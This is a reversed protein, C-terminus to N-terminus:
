DRRKRRRNKGGDGLPDDEGGLFGKMFKGIGGGGSLLGEITDALPDEGKEPIRRGKEDFRQPLDITTDSKAPSPSRASNVLTNASSNPNSSASPASEQRHHHHHRHKHPRSSSSASRNSPHSTSPNDSFSSYENNISDDRYQDRDHSGTRQRRKRIHEPSSPSSTDPTDLNFQVSKFPPQSSSRHRDGSSQPSFARPTTLGEEAARQEDVPVGTANFFSEASVNEDARRANGAPPAYPNAPPPSYTGQAGPPIYPNQQPAYGYDPHIQQSPQGPQQGYQAPDYGPSPAYGGAPPPPFQNTSPYYAEQQQPYGAAQAGSAEPSIPSYPQQQPPYQERDREDYSGPGHEAEYRRRERKEQKRQQKRKEHQSIAAAAGAAGLGAAALDRTRSRSPSDSKKRRHRRRRGGDSESSSSGGRRRERSREAGYAAGATVPVMAGERYGAQSAPRNHFDPVGGTSYVPQDGYEILGPDSANASRPGDFAVSRSRSRSMSRSKRREARAEKRSEKEKKGAQNKEYLGAIAASGLGAAAIPLGTRVRSKSRSKGRGSRSKSRAREVLGAVAAGALGAQAIKKNRHAPDRADDPPEDAAHRRTRSRSRRDDKAEKEKNNRSRAYGVAAATAAAALGLGALQRVRSKSRSRSRSKHRRRRRERDRSRSRSRSPSGRRSKSRHRSRARSIAEAGAVGLAAAGLDKGVRSKRSSKEDGEREKHHRLLEAAGFGAIAGEALHRKHHPSEDRGYSDRTEKRIYVMSDDSSYDRDRRRGLGIQSVSDGPSVERRRYRQEEYFDDDGGRRSRDDRSVERVRREYYYDEERDERREPERRAIQRDENVESRQILQFESEEKQPAPVVIPARPAEQIIIQQPEQRIIIPQPPDPRPFYEVSKSYREVDYPDRRPREVDREYRYDREYPRRDPEREREYREIRIDREIRPPSPPRDREFREIRIERREPEPEPEPTRERRVIRTEEITNGGGRDSRRDRDRNYVSLRDDDEDRNPIRYRKVTTFGGRDSSDRGQSTRNDWDRDRDRERERERIIVSM